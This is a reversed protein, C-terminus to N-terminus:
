PVIVVDGDELMLDATKGNILRKLNVRIVMEKGTQKNKRRITVKSTKAWETPGGAQAIAQLITIRKSSLFTIAGPTKVEGYVFVSQTQDVPVSIVDKPKLEINFEQKGGSLDELSVTIITQKGDPLQRHIYIENRAQTTVGGTQAIIMLLTTPGALEYLGPRAVAGIVAVKQFEKIFVTVHAGGTTYKEELIAALKM